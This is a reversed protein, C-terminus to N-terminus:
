PEAHDAGFVSLVVPHEFLMDPAGIGDEEAGRGERRQEGRLEEGARFAPSFSAVDAGNAAVPRM